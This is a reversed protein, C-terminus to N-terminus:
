GLMKEFESLLDEPSKDDDLGGEAEPAAEEEAAAMVPEPAPASVAPMEGGDLASKLQENEQKLRKLDALDDEIIDYQALDEKLQDREKTLEAVQAQLAEDGGGAAAGAGANAQAEALLRELEAIREDKAKITGSLETNKAELDKIINDKEALQSRLRAIEAQLAEDGGGTSVGVPTSSSLQDLPLVSPISSPDVDLGGGRFLSSKLATSNHIISDLYNKVVSAPIQHKLNHYKRRNYFYVYIIIALTIALLGVQIVVLESSFQDLFNILSNLLNDRWPYAYYMM